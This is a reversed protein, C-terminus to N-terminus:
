KYLFEKGVKDKIIQGSLINMASWKPNPIMYDSGYHAALLRDYNQPIKVKCGKFSYEMLGDFPLTIKRPIFENQKLNKMNSPKIFDYCYIDNGNDNKEFFFIDISVNKYVYTEEKGVKGGDILIERQKEFGYKKLLLSVEETFDDKFVGIDLDFDHQIFNNERIAGLLTGFMLWYNCGAENLIKDFLILLEPAFKRFQQKRQKKLRNYYFSRYFPRICFVALKNNKFKVALTELTKIRKM